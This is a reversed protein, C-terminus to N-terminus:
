DSMLKFEHETCFSSGLLAERVGGGEGWRRLHETVQAPVEDCEGVTKEDGSDIGMKLADRRAAYSCAM